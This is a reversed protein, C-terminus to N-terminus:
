MISWTLREWKKKVTLQKRNNDDDDNGEAQLRM